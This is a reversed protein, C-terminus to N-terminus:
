ALQFHYTLAKTSCSLRSLLQPEFFCPPRPRNGYTISHHSLRVLLKKFCTKQRTNKANFPLPSLSSSQQDLRHDKLFPAWLAHLSRYLFLEHKPFCLRDPPLAPWAFFGRHARPGRVDPQQWMRDSQLIELFSM